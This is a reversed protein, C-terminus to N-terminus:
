KRKLRSSKEIKKLEQLEIHRAQMASGYTAVGYPVIYTLLIQFIITATLTGSLIANYHNILALLTGVVVGVKVSRYVCVKDTAHRLFLKM